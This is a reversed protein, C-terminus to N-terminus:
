SSLMNDGSSVLATKKAWHCSVTKLYVGYPPEKISMIKMSTFYPHQWSCVQRMTLFPTKLFLLVDKFTKNQLDRLNKFVM